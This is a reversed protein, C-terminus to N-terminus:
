VKQRCWQNLLHQLLGLAQGGLDTFVVGMLAPPSAEKGKKSATGSLLRRAVIIPCTASVCWAVVWLDDGLGLGAIGYVKDRVLQWEYHVWVGAQQAMRWAAEGVGVAWRAVYRTVSCPSRKDDTLTHIGDM